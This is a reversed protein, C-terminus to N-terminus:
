SPASAATTTLAFACVCARATSASSASTPSPWGTRPAVSLGAGGRARGLTDQRLDGLRPAQAPRAPRHRAVDTSAPDHPLKGAQGALRLADLFQGCCRPCPMCPPVPFTPSRKPAGSSGSRGARRLGYRLVHIHRRLDQTWTHLVLTFASMAGLWLPTPPSSPSSYRRVADLHPLGLPCPVSGSRELPHPLAFVLHCYPVPLLEALQAQRWADRAGSQCQPCHRNRCSHFM